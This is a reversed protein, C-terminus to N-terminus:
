KQQKKNSALENLADEIFKKYDSEEIESQLPEIEDKIKSTIVSVRKELMKNLEAMGINGLLDSREGVIKYIERRVLVDKSMEKAAYFIGILLMYSALSLFSITVLGFPPFVLWTLGHLVASGFLLIMGIGAIRLPIKLNQRKVRSAIIWFVIGFLLGGIQKYPSFLIYYIFNFQMGYELILNDFIGLENGFYPFFFYILPLSVLAWYRIAGVKASYARLMIITPIWVGLFSIISLYTYLTTLNSFRIGYISNEAVAAKISKMRVAPDRDSLVASLFALSTILYLIIMCFAFAYGITLYNKSVVFWRIFQYALLVLFSIAAVHSIYVASEILILDYSEFALIQIILFVLISSLAIQSVVVSKSAFERIGQTPKVDSAAGKKCYRLFVYNSFIFFMVFLTFVISDILPGPTEPISTYFSILISDIIMVISSLM